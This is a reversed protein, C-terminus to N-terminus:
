KVIKVSILKKLETIARESEFILPHDTGLEEKLDIIKRYESLALGPYGARKYIRALNFRPESHKPSKQIIERYATIAEDLKGERVLKKAKDMDNQYPGNEYSRDSFHPGSFLSAPISSLFNILYTCAVCLLFPLVLILINVLPTDSLGLCAVTLFYTLMWFTAFLFLRMQRDDDDDPLHSDRIFSDEEM